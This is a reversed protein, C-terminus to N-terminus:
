RVQRLARNRLRKTSGQQNDRSRAEKLFAAYVGAMAQFKSNSETIAYTCLMALKAAFAHAFLNSFIGEDDIRRIGTCFIVDENCLIQGSEVVHFIQDRRELSDTELPSSFFPSTQNRDVQLLRLIDSPIEFAAGFGWLPAAALKAPIFRKIAFSWECAELTANKAIEYHVKILRAADSDDDISTIADQGLLNLAINAIDVRETTTRRRDFLCNRQKM